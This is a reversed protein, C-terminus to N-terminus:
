FRITHFLRFGGPSIEASTQSSGIVLAAGLAGLAVGGWLLPRNKAKLGDCQNTAYVPNTKQAICADYTSNPANGTSADTVRAVTVGAVATAVGAIGLAIGSWFLARHNNSSSSSQDDAAAVPAAALVFALILSVTRM